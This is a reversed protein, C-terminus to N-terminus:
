TPLGSKILREISLGRLLYPYVLRAQNRRSLNHGSDPNDICAMFAFYRHNAAQMLTRLDCLSCITKRPPALKFM